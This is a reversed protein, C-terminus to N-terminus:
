EELLIIKEGLIEETSFPKPACENKAM